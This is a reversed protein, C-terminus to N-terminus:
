LIIFPPTKSEDPSFSEFTRDNYYVVIGIVKRGESHRLTLPSNETAIDNHGPNIPANNVSADTHAPANSFEFSQPTGTGDPHLQSRSSAPNSFSDATAFMFEPESHPIPQSDSESEFQLSQQPNVDSIKSQGRDTNSNADRLQENKMSDRRPAQGAYTDPASPASHPVQPQTNGIIMEGEGFMLWVISLAPYKAHIKGIIEDSVKKNRGALLQSATPRPIGCEDAFQTVSVGLTELYYKLRSILDMFKM